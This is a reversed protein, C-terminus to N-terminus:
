NPNKERAGQPLPILPSPSCNVAKYITDMVGEFNNSLENNYFRLVTYGQQIFFDDRKRDYEYQKQELHGSGDLEIVIRKEYCIFDAIYNQMPVQRRFKANCFRRDRLYQWLKQEFETMNKRLNRAKKSHM